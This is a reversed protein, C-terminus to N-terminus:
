RWGHASGPTPGIGNGRGEFGRLAQGRFGVGFIGGTIYFLIQAPLSSRPRRSTVARDTSVVIAATVFEAGHAASRDLGLGREQSGILAACRPPRHLVRIREHVMLGFDAIGIGVARGFGVVVMVVIVVV